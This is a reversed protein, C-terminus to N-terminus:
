SPVRSGAWTSVTQLRRNIVDCRAVLEVIGSIGETHCQARTLFVHLVCVDWEGFQARLIVTVTFGRLIQGLFPLLHLFLVLM